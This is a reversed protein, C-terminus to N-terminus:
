RLGGRAEECICPKRARLHRYVAFEPKGWVSCNFPCDLSMVEKAYKFPGNFVNFTFILADQDFGAQPYDYFDNPALLM